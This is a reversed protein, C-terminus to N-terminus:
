RYILALLIITSLVIASHQKLYLIFIISIIYCFIPLFVIQLLLQYFDTSDHFLIIPLVGCVACIVHLISETFIKFKSGSIIYYKNFIPQIIIKVSPTQKCIVFLICLVLNTALLNFTSWVGPLVCQACLEHFSLNKWISIDSYVDENTNYQDNVDNGYVDNYEPNTFMETLITNVNLNDFLVNGSASNYLYDEVNGGYSVSFQKHNM